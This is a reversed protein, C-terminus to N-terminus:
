YASRIKRKVFSMCQLIGIYVLICVWAFVETDKRDCAQQREYEDDVYGNLMHLVLRIFGIMKSITHHASSILSIGLQKHVNLKKCLKLLSNIESKLSSSM